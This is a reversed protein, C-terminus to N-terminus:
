SRNSRLGGGCVKLARMDEEYDLATKVLHNGYQTIVYRMADFDDRLGDLQEIATKADDGQFSNQLSNRFTTYIQQTYIEEYIQAQKKIDEGVQKLAEYDLIIKKM